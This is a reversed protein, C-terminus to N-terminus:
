HNQYYWIMMITYCDYIDFILKRLFNNTVVDFSHDINCNKSLFFELDLSMNSLSQTKYNFSGFWGVFVSPSVLAGVAV